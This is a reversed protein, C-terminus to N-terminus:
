RAARWDERTIAWREHDKWRGAVKLYRPSFGELRFGLRKVLHISATNGPQINAEIRHLRARTFAHRLVFRLAETMIGRKAFVAHAYYGLYASQLNGRVIESVSVVGAIRGGPQECVLRTIVNGTRARQLFRAFAAADAPPVVWPRHLRRSERVLRLFEDRDSARPERLSVRLAM